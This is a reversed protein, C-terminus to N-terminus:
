AYFITNWEVIWSVGDRENKHMLTEHIMSLRNANLKSLAVLLEAIIPNNKHQMSSSIGSKRFNIESIEDQSLILLDKAVKGISGTIMSLINCFDVIRDRQNQWNFNDYELGLLTSLKEKILNGKNNFFSLDGIPGGM